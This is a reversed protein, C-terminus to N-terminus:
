PNVIEDGPGPSEQPDTPAHDGDNIPAAPGQALQRVFAALPEGRASSRQAQAAWSASVPSSAAWVDNQIAADGLAAAQANRDFTWFFDPHANSYWEGGVINKNEDLELDYIFRSTKTPTRTLKGRTPVIETVYTVDMYVGLVYRTEPARYRRFKDLKYREIPILSANLNTSEKWSQPNFYRYQYSSIPFNWVEADYTADMVFSRRNLGVQNVVATHWTGPNSDWCLPDVIRGYADRAPNAVNCRNGVFRTAPSGNAWLMSQLAKVDQPYFTIPLGNAATVTVPAEPIPVNMHAAGAWGHCIGMWSAVKGYKEYSRAGQTWSFKTLSFNTDGVAVDYKEAPSLRNIADRDGYALIASAPNAVVYSNNAAWDASNPYSQDAYRAGLLGKYTPWYSDTWPVPDLAVRTLLRADMDNVNISIASGPEVLREPRDKGSPDEMRLGPLAPRGAFIIKDRIRKREASSARRAEEDIYGASRARGNVIEDPLRQMEKAPNAHFARLFDTVSGARASVPSVISAVILGLVFKTQMRGGSSALFGKNRSLDAGKRWRLGPAEVMGGCFIKNISSALFVTEGSRPFKTLADRKDRVLCLTHVYARECIEVLRDAKSRARRHPYATARSNCIRECILM